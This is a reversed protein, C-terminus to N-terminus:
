LSFTLGTKFAFRKFRAEGGFGNLFGNGVPWFRQADLIIGARTGLAFYASVIADVTTAAREFDPGPNGAFDYGGVFEAQNFHRSLGM